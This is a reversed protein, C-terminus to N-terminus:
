DISWVAGGNSVRKQDSTSKTVEPKEGANKYAEPQEEGNKTKTKLARDYEKIADELRGQAHRIRGMGVRAPAYNGDISVAEHMEKEASNLEGRELSVLGLGEHAPAFPEKATRALDRSREFLGQALDLKGQQLYDMGQAYAGQPTDLVSEPKVEKQAGGCALLIIFPVGVVARFGFHKM